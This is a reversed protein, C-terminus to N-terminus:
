HERKVLNGIAAVLMLGALWGFAIEIWYVVFLLWGWYLPEGDRTSLSPEWDAKSGLSIVPLLVEASYAVSV